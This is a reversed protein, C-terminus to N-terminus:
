PTQNKRLTTLWLSLGVLMSFAATYYNHAFNVNSLSATMHVYVVGALAFAGTDHGNKLLRLSIM